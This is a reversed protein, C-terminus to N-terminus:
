LQKIIELNDSSIDTFEIGAQFKGNGLDHCHVVKGKADILDNGLALEMDLLQDKSLQSSIELLIGSISINITRGMGQDVIVGDEDVNFYSLNLSDTRQHRRNQFKSTM